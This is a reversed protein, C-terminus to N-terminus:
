TTHQIHIIDFSFTEQALTNQITSTFHFTHHIICTIYIPTNHPSVASDIFKYSQLFVSRNWCQLSLM